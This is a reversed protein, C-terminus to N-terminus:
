ELEQKDFFYCPHKMKFAKIRQHFNFLLTLFKNQCAVQFRFVM